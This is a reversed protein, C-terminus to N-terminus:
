YLLMERRIEEFPDGAVKEQRHKVKMAEISLSYSLVSIAVHFLKRPDNAQDPALFRKYSKIRNLMQEISPDSFSAGSLRHAFRNRITHIARIVDLEEKTILGLCYALTSKHHLSSLPGPNDLLSNVEKQDAILYNSLLIALSEDLIAEGVIAAARDNTSELEEWISRWDLTANPRNNQTITSM